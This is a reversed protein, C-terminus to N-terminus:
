AFIRSPKHAARWLRWQRRWRPAATLKFPDDGLRELRMLLPRVLAIPLIAPLIFTPLASFDPQAANLHGEACVRLEAIAKRLEQTPRGGLATQPTAGHRLLLDLPMCMRGHAVDRAFNRLVGAISYAIGAHRIVASAAVSRGGLIDAALAFVTAETREAYIELDLLGAFPQEYFDFAHGDILASLTQIDIGH